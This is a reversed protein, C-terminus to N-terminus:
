RRGIRCGRASSISSLLVSPARAAGFADKGINVNKHHLQPQLQLVGFNRCAAFKKVVAFESFPRLISWVRVRKTVFDDLYVQLSREFALSKSWQHNVDLGLFDANGESATREWGFAVDSAGYVLATITSLFSWIASIPVHGNFTTPHTAAITKLGDLDVVREVLLSPLNLARMSRAIPAATGEVAFAYM